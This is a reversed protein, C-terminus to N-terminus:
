TLLRKGPKFILGLLLGSLLAITITVWSYRAAQKSFNGPVKDAIQQAKTNYQNLGSGVEKKVTAATDNVFERTSSIVKELGLNVQSVGDDVWTTLDDKTKGAVKHFRDELKGLQAAKDQLLINVDERLKEVDKSVKNDLQKKNM